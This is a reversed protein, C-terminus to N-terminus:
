IGATRCWRTAAGNPSGSEHYALTKVATQPFWGGDYFWVETWVQYFGEPLGSNWDGSFTVRDNIISGAPGGFYGFVPVVRQFRKYQYVTWFGPSAAVVAGAANETVPLIWFRYAIDQVDIGAAPTASGAIHMGNLMADCTVSSVAVTGIRAAGAAPQPPTAAAAILALALVGFVRSLRRGTAGRIITADARNV